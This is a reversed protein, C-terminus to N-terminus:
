ARSIELARAPNIKGEYIARGIVVGSIEPTAKIKELDEHCSVGGSLIIPIGTAAALSSTEPINPGQMAGDRNIDTYIIASVGADEFRAALEAAKVESESVWGETAVFGNRADIGVAIQGPFVACAEKVLAPNKVAVTGLVVRSVGSALWAEITKLDRIGGGLQVPIKVSSIISGVAPANVPKGEVAGNLDVVHVWSFGSEEFGAAVEGPNESFVTEKDMEGKLLRVCKGNKLDIAPFIIM